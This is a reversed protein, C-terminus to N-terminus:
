KLFERAKLIFGFDRRVSILAILNNEDVIVTRAAEKVNM